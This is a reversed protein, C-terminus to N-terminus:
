ATQTEGIWEYVIEENNNQIQFTKLVDLLADTNKLLHEGNEEIEIALSTNAEIVYTIKEISENFAQLAQSQNASASAIDKTYDLIEQIAETVEEILQATDAAIHNGKQVANVSRKVLDRTTKTAERTADALKTIREALVAFGKGMSGARAAEITANLALLHTEESIDEIMAIVKNIERSTTTIEGMSKVLEQMKTNELQLQEQMVIAHEWMEKANLANEDVDKSIGEITTVLQQVSATQTVSGTSLNKSIRSVKLAHKQVSLTAHYINAIVENFVKIIIELSHKIPYFMGKYEVKVEINCKRNSLAGLIDAINTIYNKLQSETIRFQNALEGLENSAKYDLKVNLNGKAMEKMANEIQKLPKEINTVLRKLLWSVWILAGIISAICLVSLLLTNRKYGLIITKTEQDVTNYVAQLETKVAEIRNFYEAELLAIAEDNKGSSSYLIANSRYPLAEQLLEQVAVVHVKCDVNNKLIYKLDAQLALDAEEVQTKYTEKLTQDTTLCLKYIANQVELNHEIASSSRAMIPINNNQIKTSSSNMKQYAILLIAFVVLFIRVMRAFTLQLSRKIAQDEFRNKKM